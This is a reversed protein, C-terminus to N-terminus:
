SLYDRIAQAILTAADGHGYPFQGFQPRSEIKQRIADLLRGEGPNFLTNVGAEVTEVWETEGRLTICPTQLFMAEKQMGGSDTVLVQASELLRLTDLYGQPQLVRLRSAVEELRGIAELAIRTRPHMPFVVQGHTAAHLIEDTLANLRERDDTNEARHLTLLSYGGPELALEELVSSEERAREVNALVADFMVDGVNHITAPDAGEHRLQESAIGSPTFLLSSVHDTLIRNIEEPMRRNFSRLGAEVHAIPFNLKAAVLAGALTSNTDGYVLVLEPARELMVPELAQMMQATQVAQSGGSINLNVSPPALGLQDFFVQSMNDDFHQGTHIVVEQIGPIGSLARTVPGTKIFQPRAGVVTLVTKM